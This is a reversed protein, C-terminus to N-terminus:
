RTPARCTVAPRTVTAPTTTSKTMSRACRRRCRGGSLCTTGRSRCGHGCMPARLRRWLSVEELRLANKRIVGRAILEDMQRGLDAVRVRLRNAVALDRVAAAERMTSELATNVELAEPPWVCRTCTGSMRSTIEGWHRSCLDMIPGRHDAACVMRARHTAPNECIGLGHLGDRNVLNKHGAYEPGFLGGMLHKPGADGAYGYPNCRAM